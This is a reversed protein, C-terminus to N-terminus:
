KKSGLVVRLIEEGNNQIRIRVLVKQNKQLVRNGVGGDGTMKNNETEKNKTACVVRITRKEMTM